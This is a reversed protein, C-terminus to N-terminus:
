DFHWPQGDVVKAKDRWHFFQFVYTNKGINTIEVGHKPQWINRMTSMFANANIHRETWMKGVLSLQIRAEEDEVGDDVWEVENAEGEEILNKAM